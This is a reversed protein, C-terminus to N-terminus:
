ALTQMRREIEELLDRMREHAALGDGGDRWEEIQDGVRIEGARIAVIGASRRVVVPTAKSVVLGVRASSALPVIIWINHQALYGAPGHASVFEAKV